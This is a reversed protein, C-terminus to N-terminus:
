WWYGELATVAALQDPTNQSKVGPCAWPAHPGSDGLAATGCQSMSLVSSKKLGGSGM